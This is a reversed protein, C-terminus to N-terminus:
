GGSMDGSYQARQGSDIVYYFTIEHYYHDVKERVNIWFNGIQIDKKREPMTARGIPRECGKYILGDGPQLVIPQEDGPVLITSKSKDTYQDPTKILIPWDLDLNTSVLITVAIECADRQLHRQLSQGEFYFRDNYFTNNIKRGVYEQVKKRLKSHILKYQPYRYRILSGPVQADEQVHQFSNVKFPPFYTMMGRERPVPHYLEEPDWLNKVVLFGNKELDDNNTTTSAYNQREVLLTQLEDAM